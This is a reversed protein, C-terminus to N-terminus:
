FLFSDTLVATRSGRHGSMQLKTALTEWFKAAESRDEVAAADALWTATKTADPFTTSSLLPSWRVTDAIGTAGTPDFLAVPGVTARRAVTLDYVDRKVSTVIAPGDWRLLNPVVLRTSKGTRTPAVVMVSTAAPVLVDAGQHTGVWLRGAAPPEDTGSRPPRTLLPALDHHRAWARSNVRDRIRQRHRWGDQWDMWRRIAQVAVATMLLGLAAAITVPRWPQQVAQALPEPHPRAALDLLLGPMQTVPVDWTTGALRAEVWVAIWGISAVVAIAAIAALALIGWLLELSNAGGTMLRGSRPLPPAARVSM